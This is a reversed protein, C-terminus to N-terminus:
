TSCLIVLEAAAGSVSVEQTVTRWVGMVSPPSGLGGRQYLRLSTQARAGGFHMAAMLAAAALLWRSASRGVSSNIFGM